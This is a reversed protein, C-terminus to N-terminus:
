ARTEDMEDFSPPPWGLRGASVPAMRTSPGDMLTWGPRELQQRAGQRLSPLRVGAPELGSWARGSDSDRTAAAVRVPGGAEPDARRRRRPQVSRFRPDSAKQSESAPPPAPSGRRSLSLSRSPPLYPPPPLVHLFPCTRRSGWRESDSTARAFFFKRQWHPWSSAGEEAEAAFVASVPILTCELCIGM